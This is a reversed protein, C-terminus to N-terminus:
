CSGFKVVKSSSDLNQQFCLALLQHRPEDFNLPMDVCVKFSGRATVYPNTVGCDQSAVCSKKTENDQTYKHVVESSSPEM